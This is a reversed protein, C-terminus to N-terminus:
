DFGEGLHPVHRLVDQPDDPGVASASSSRWRGRRSACGSSKVADSPQHVPQGLLVDLHQRGVAGAPPAAGTPAACASWSCARTVMRGFEKRMEALGGYVPASTRGRDCRSSCTSPATLLRESPPPQRPLAPSKESRSVQIIDDRAHGNARAGIAACRSGSPVVPLTNLVDGPELLRTAVSVGWRLLGLAAPSHADSDIVIKVGRDRALRAHNEDLDLREIQCNIEVAVGTAAAAETVRDFNIRYGDRKLLRRGTPHGLVDVYPCEIARLIRDTMQSEDQSFASHISAIVIDLEALCDSALDMTGDSRIDCEIGALV